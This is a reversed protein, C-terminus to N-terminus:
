LPLHLRGIVRAGGGRLPVALDVRVFAPAVAPWKVGIGVDDRWRDDRNTESWAIGGDYFLIFRPIPNGADFSWEVNLLAMDDGALEKLGYGRLTGLGGLAFRKPLPPTGGTVGVIVRTDLVHRPGLERDARLNVIARTFTFDGGLRGASAVEITAEVRYGDRPDFPAGYLTRLLLGRQEAKGSPFLDGRSSWRLTGIFSRMRGEPVAPNPRPTRSGFLGDASVPLSRYDDERFTAAIQGRGARVAVYAEHGRRRFYDAYSETALDIGTPEQVGITRFADDTDTLDHFEYGVSARRGAGLVRRAGVAFRANESAFGYSGQAYLSLPAYTSADRFRLELGLRPALGDIRNYLSQNGVRGVLPDLELARRRLHVTLRAGAKSAEVTYPPDGVPRVSGGSATELRALGDEIESRRLLRGPALALERLAREAGGDSLGDVVLEALRGEDVTLTLRGADGDYTGEVRAAPYGAVEYRRQLAAAMEHAPRWLVDGPGTRIIKEVQEAEYATAGVVVVERVRPADPEQALVAFVLALSAAPSV